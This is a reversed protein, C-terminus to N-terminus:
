VPETTAIEVTSDPLGPPAIVVDGSSGGIAEITVGRTVTIAEPYIGPLVRVVGGADAMEVGQQITRATYGHVAKPNVLVAPRELSGQAAVGAGSRGVAALALIVSAAVGGVRCVRGRM